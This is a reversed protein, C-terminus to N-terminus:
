VDGFAYKGIMDELDVASETELILDGNQLIEESGGPELKVYKDGILGSTKISAIVDRDIPVEKRIKIRVVAVMEERDLTIGAVKGVEVGAVDVIAGDKLGSVSGFRAILHYYNGGLLEMKGLKITLYAICLLGILVFVGVSRELTHKKM